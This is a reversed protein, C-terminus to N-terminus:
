LKAPTKNRLRVSTRQGDPSTIHGLDVKKSTSKRPTTSRAKRPTKTKEEEDESAEKDSQGGRARRVKKPTEKRPTNNASKSPTSTLGPRSNSVCINFYFCSM